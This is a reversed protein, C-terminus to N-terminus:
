DIKITKPELHKPLELKLKITLLGDELGASKVVVHEALAFTLKFDRQAIGHHVVEGVSDESTDTAAAVILSRGDLTIQLEHKKIGAIAMVITYDDDKRIIDYPPYSPKTDSITKLTQLVPSWGIGWREIRPFLDQITLVKPEPKKLSSWHGDKEPFQNKPWSNTNSM